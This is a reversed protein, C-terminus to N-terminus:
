VTLNKDFTELNKQSILLKGTRGPTKRVIGFLGTHIYKVVTMYHLDYMEAIETPTYFKKM